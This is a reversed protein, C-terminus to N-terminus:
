IMVARQKQLLRCKRVRERNIKLRLKREEPTETALTNKYALYSYRRAKALRAERKKPTEIDKKVQYYNRMYSLYAERKNKLKEDISM